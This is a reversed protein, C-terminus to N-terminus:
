LLKTINRFFNGGADEPEFLFGFLYAFETQQKSELSRGQIHLSV